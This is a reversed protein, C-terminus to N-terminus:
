PNWGGKVILRWSPSSGPKGAANEIALWLSGAHSTLSGRAYINKPRWLGRYSDALNTAEQKELEDLRKALPTIVKALHDRLGAAFRIADFPKTMSGVKNIPNLIGM